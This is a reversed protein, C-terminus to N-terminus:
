RRQAPAQPTTLTSTPIRQDPRRRGAHVRDRATVDVVQGPERQPPLQSRAQHPRHGNYHRSYGALVVRLHQEGLILLQDLGERRLTGAYREASSNARPPRAPTTIVRTGNGAFVEDFAVAFKSDRDRILFRFRGAREGQQM